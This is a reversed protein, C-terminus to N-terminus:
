DKKWVDSAKIKTKAHKAEKTNSQSPEEVELWHSVCVILGTYSCIWHGDDRECIITEEENWGLVPLGDVPLCDSSKNWNNM